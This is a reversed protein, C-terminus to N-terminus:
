SVGVEVYSRRLRSPTLGFSRKFWYIMHSSDTFGCEHAIQTISRNTNLVMWRASKIRMGRWYEGPSAKLHKRFLRTLERETTGISKAVDSISCREFTSQRMLGVAHVVRQDLCKMGLEPDEQMEQIEDFGRGAMLYHLAKRTRSNGCHHTVLHMALNVSALGGPCTIYGGDSVVPLDTVPTVNPFNRRLADALSFHVACRLGSLLGLEALLFQGTCLGIVPVKKEVALRIFNYLDAPAEWDGHLIGGHVMIYDFETPDGFLQTPSLSFGCSATIPDSTASLLEWSCFIQRSFDSEDSSLRLFEVFCALSMLTFNPTPAIGVRLLTGGSPPMRSPSLFSYDPRMTAFSTRLSGLITQFMCDM